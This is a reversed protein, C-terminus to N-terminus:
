VIAVSQEGRTISKYLQPSIYKALQNSVNELIDNTQRMENVLRTNEIAIVAQCQDKGHVVQM